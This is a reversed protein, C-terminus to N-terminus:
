VEEWGGNIQENAWDQWAESLMDEIEEDTKGEFDSENFDVTGTVESGQRNTAVKFQFTRKM